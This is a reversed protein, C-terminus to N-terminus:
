SLGSHVCCERIWGQCGASSVEESVELRALCTCMGCGTVLVVGLSVWGDGM